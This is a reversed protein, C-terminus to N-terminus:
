KGKKSKVEQIDQHLDQKIKEVTDKIEDEIGEVREKLYLILKPDNPNDNIMKVFEVKETPSLKNLILELISQHITSDALTSLHHKHHTDLDLEELAVVLDDVQILHSYFYTM